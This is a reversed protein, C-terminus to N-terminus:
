NQAKLTDTKQEQAIKRYASPNIHYHAKFLRYFTRPSNYGCIIAINEIVEGSSELLRKAEELRLNNIYEQMTKGTYIKVAEFLYTRNTSLEDVLINIDLKAKAFNRDTLLYDRLRVFLEQLRVDDPLSEEHGPLAIGRLRLEEYQATASDPAKIQLYLDRNKEQLKRYFYLLIGLLLLTLALVVSILTIRSRQRKLEEEKLVREMEFTEQEAYALMRTNYVTEEQTRIMSISDIYSIARDAKDMRLYYDCNLHYFREWNRLPLDGAILYKHASNILEETKDLEDKELYLRGLHLAYGGALTSDKVELAQPVVVSYLRMAEEKQGRRNANAAMAGIAVVRDVPKMFVREKSKLISFYLSDSRDYDGEMTYYDGLYDRARMVSRDYYHAASQEAAKWLLPIAKSYYKFDYYILGIHTYFYAPALIYPEGNMRELTSFIENILRIVPIQEKEIGSSVLFTPFGSSGYLLREMIRLKTQQDNKREYKEVLEWCYDWYTHEHPIFLCYTNFVDLEKELAKSKYIKNAKLLKDRYIPGYKEKNQMDMIFYFYWVEEKIESLNHTAVLHFFTDVNYYFTMGPYDRHIISDCGETWPQSRRELEYKDWGQHLLSDPIVTQSYVDAFFSFIILLFVIIAPKYSIPM